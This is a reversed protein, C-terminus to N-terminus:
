EMSDNNHCFGLADCGEESGGDLFGAAQLLHMIVQAAAVRDQTDGGKVVAVMSDMASVYAGTMVDEIKRLGDVSGKPDM